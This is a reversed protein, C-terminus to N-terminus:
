IKEELVVVREQLFADFGAVEERDFDIRGGIVHGFIRAPVIADGDGEFVGGDGGGGIGGFFFGHFFEEGVLGGILLFFFAAEFDEEGVPVDRDGVNGGCFFLRKRSLEIPNLKGKM